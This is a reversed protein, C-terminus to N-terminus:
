SAGLASVRNTTPDHASEQARFNAYSHAQSLRLLTWEVEIALEERPRLGVERELGYEGLSM